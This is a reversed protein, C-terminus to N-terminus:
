GPGYSGVPPRRLHRLGLLPLGTLVLLWSAPEPVADIDSAFEITDTRLVVAPEGFVLELWTVFGAIQVGGNETLLCPGAPGCLGLPSESSDSRFSVTVTFTSSISVSSSIEDSIPPALFPREPDPNGPESIGFPIGLGIASVNTAGPPASIVLRCEEPGPSACAVPSPGVGSVTPTESLDNFVFTDAKAAPPGLLFALM